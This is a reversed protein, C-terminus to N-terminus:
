KEKRKLNEEQKQNQYLACHLLLHDRFFLLPDYNGSIRVTCAAQMEEGQPCVLDPFVPCMASAKDQM